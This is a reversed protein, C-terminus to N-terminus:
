ESESEPKKTALSDIKTQLAQSLQHWNSRTLWGRNDVCVPCKGKDHHDGFSDVHPCVCWPISSAVDRAIKKLDAEITPVVAAIGSGWNEETATKLSDVVESLVGRFDTLYAKALKFQGRLPAPVLRGRADYFPEPKSEEAKAHSVTATPQEVPDSDEEVTKTARGSKPPQVATPAEALPVPQPIPARKSAAEGTLLKARTMEERVDGVLQHSVRCIDAIERDSCVSYEPVLLASKVSQRKDEKSRPLGHTENAAFACLLAAERATKEDKCDTVKCAIKKHGAKERGALRHGGDGAFLQNGGRFVEIPPLNEAESYREVTDGDLRSRVLATATRDISAIPLELQVVPLGNIKEKFRNLKARRHFSAKRIREREAYTTPQHM